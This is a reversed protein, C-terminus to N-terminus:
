TIINHADRHNGRQNGEHCITGTKLRCSFTTASVCSGLVTTVLIPERSVYVGRSPSLHELPRGTFPLPWRSSAPCRHRLPDRFPGLLYIGASVPMQVAEAPAAGTEARDLTYTIVNRCFIVDVPTRLGYDDDMLNLRRLTVMERLEPVIRFLGRTRDKSVLLYKKRLAPPIDAVCRADYVASGAKELVRTSIDTALITFPCGTEKLVMALTYITGRGNLLRREM